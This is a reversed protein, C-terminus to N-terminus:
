FIKKQNRIPNKKFTPNSRFHRLWLINLKTISMGITCGKPKVHLPLAASRTCARQKRKGSNEHDQAVTGRWRGGAHRRGRNAAAGANTTLMRERQEETAATWQQRGHRERPRPALTSCDALNRCPTFKAAWTWAVGSSLVTRSFSSFVPQKRRSSCKGNCTM